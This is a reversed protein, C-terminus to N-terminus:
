AIHRGRQRKTRSSAAPPRPCLGRATDPWGLSKALAAMDRADNECAQLRGNWPRGQGDRYHQSDVENLGIMLGVGRAMRRSERM